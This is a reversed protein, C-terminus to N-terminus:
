KPKTFYIELKLKKDDPVDPTNGYIVTGLPNMVSSLPYFYANKQYQLLSKWNDDNVAPASKVKGFSITNISQCVAIGLKVNTSDSNKLLKRLYDTIRVKYRIGRSTAIASTGKDIIGGHQYKSTNPYYGTTYDNTYDVLPRKNNIDYLFLRNPEVVNSNMITQDIYFSINAENILWNKSRLDDLEDPVGNPTNTFLGTSTNYGKLDTTGFLKIVGISGEGGKLYIRSNDTTTAPLSAYTSGNTSYDNNLLGVSNGTLNMVISKYVKTFDTTTTNENYYVTITGKGFNMMAMCTEKTPIKEIRLYLGKFWDCFATNNQLKDSSAQFIKNNFFDSRLRLHM